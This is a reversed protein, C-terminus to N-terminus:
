PGEGPIETTSPTSRRCRLPGAVILARTTGWGTGTTATRRQGGPAGAAMHGAPTMSRHCPSLRTTAAPGPRRTNLHSGAMAVAGLRTVWDTPGRGTRRRGAPGGKAWSALDEGHQGDQAQCAMQRRDTVPLSRTATRIRGRAPRRGAQRRGGPRRTVTMLVGPRLARTLGTGARLGVRDLDGPLRTIVEAPRPNAMTMRGGRAGLQPLITMNALTLIRSTPTHGHVAQRGRPEAAARWGTLKTPGLRTHDSTRDGFWPPAPSIPRRMRGPTPSVAMPAPM